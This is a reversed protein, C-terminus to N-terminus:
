TIVSYQKLLFCPLILFYDLNFNYFMCFVEIFNIYLCSFNFYSDFNDIKFGSPIRSLSKSSISTHM